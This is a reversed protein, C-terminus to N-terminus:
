FEAARTIGMLEYAAGAVASDLFSSSLPECYRLKWLRYAHLHRTSDKRRGPPPSGGGCLPLLLSALVIALVLLVPRAAVVRRRVGAACGLFSTFQQCYSIRM